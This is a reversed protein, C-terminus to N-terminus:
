RSAGARFAEGEADTVAYQVDYWTRVSSWAYLQLGIGQAPAGSGAEAVHVEIRGTTPAVAADVGGPRPEELVLAARTAALAPEAARTRSDEARDLTVLEASGDAVLPAVGSNHLPTARRLAGRVLFAAAVLLTVLALQKMALAGLPLLSAAVPLGARPRWAAAVIAWRTSGPPAPRPDDGELARALRARARTLRTSVANPSLGLRRAIERPQAGDWYRLAVIERDPSPLAEVAAAVRRQLAVRELVDGDSPSVEPRAAAEERRRRRHGRRAAALALHRATSRLWARLAGTGHISARSQTAALLTEQVVDEAAHADRLVEAAVARVCAIERLVLDLDPSQTM